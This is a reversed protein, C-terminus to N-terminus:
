RRAEKEDNKKEENKKEKEEINFRKGRGKGWKGYGREREKRESGKKEEWSKGKGNEKEGTALQAQLEKMRAGEGAPWLEGEVGTVRDRIRSLQSDINGLYDRVDCELERKFKLRCDFTERRARGIYTDASRLQTRAWDSMQDIRSLADGLEWKVVEVEAKTESIEGKMKMLEKELMAARGEMKEKCLEDGGRRDSRKEQDGCVSEVGSETQRISESLVEEVTNDVIEMDGEIPAMIPQIFVCM